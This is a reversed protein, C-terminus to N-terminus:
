NKGSSKPPPLEILTHTRLMKQGKHFRKIEEVGDLIEQGINRQSMRSEEAVKKLIHSPMSARESKGYITLLWIESISERWYYIVRVGGRKGKGEHSWRM